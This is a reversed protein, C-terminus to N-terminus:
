KIRMRGNFNAGRPFMERLDANPQGIADLINYCDDISWTAVGRMRDAIYSYSRGVKRGLETYDMEIEALRGRLQLYFRKM